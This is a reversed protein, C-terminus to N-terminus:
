LKERSRKNKGSIQRSEGSKRKLDFFEARNHQVNREPTYQLRFLTYLKHLPLSSPERERVTNNMEPLANQGIPWLFTRSEGSKRKLDFFEVRNHQVNREPTYQLRFLTYLKHLPLSSPERERVTNNMEPLANQGIPWM